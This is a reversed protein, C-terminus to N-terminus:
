RLTVSVTATGYGLRSSTRPSEHRSVTLSGAIAGGALAGTFSLDETMDIPLGQSDVVTAYAQREFALAAPSGTVRLDGDVGNFFQGTPAGGSCTSSVVGKTGQMEATGTIAGANENLRMRLTGSYTVTNICPNSGNQDAFTVAFQLQYAGSYTGNGPQADDGGGLQTAALVGGAAAAGVLGLKTASMGGGSGGAGGGSGSGAGAGGSSSASATAAEAATMVNTQAIAAAGAQGQFAAQVQIQFTGSGLPNIAAAAAQGAANTTVTVTQSGSAFSALKGGRISFTVVAGAVPQDNRDRVEVVPAVATKQQIINVADEGAVVRIKLGPQAQAATATAAPCLVAIVLVVRVISM